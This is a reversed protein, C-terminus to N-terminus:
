GLRDWYDIHWALAIIEVGDIPQKAALRALDVDAPPCSSCGESTFLEAVVPLRDNALTQGSTMAVMFATASPLLLASLFFRIIM